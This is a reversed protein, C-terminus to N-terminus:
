RRLERLRRELASGTLLVSGPVELRMAVAEERKFERLARREDSEALKAALRDLIQQQAAEIWSPHLTM